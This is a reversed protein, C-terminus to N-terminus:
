KPKDAIARIASKTLKQRIKGYVSWGNEGAELAKRAAGLTMEDATNIEDLGAWSVPWAVSAGPRARPSYPAIATAGLENRFHDIFIRGKRKAKSMTATFKQPADAAVREALDSAFKKIVAFDHESQLPVVIHIGKGGSLLPLSELGIASLVDRIRRAGRKVAAFEVSPDPDLDFVMRDPRHVDEHKSGWVHFELVGMQVANLLAEPKKLYIYSESKGEKNIFAEALWNEGFGAAPHRQYFCKKLAGEPCRVLTMFRDEIYPLMLHAAAQMYTAIDSKTIGQDPYILKDPHSLKLPTVASRPMEQRVEKAPKDERLGQFRGHRILREPTWGAFAIQAVQKPKVWIVGRRMPAPVDCAPNQVTNKDRWAALKALVDDSFGSGVRGAYRLDKGERQAMLLSAFPRRKDSPAFGIIVFEQTHGCKIKLWDHGRGSRYPRDERKAVIGELGHKCATKLLKKPDGVFDESYQLPANKDLPGLLTKLKKKRDSLPNRTLDEGNQSLLDFLFYTLPYKGNELTASLAGFDTRGSKGVVAIEGDLLCARLKLAAVAKAVAPFKTTWDLGSRTYIKVADGDAAILARYGDYKIEYIWGKEDPPENVLTALMPALFSPLKASKVTANWTADDHAIDAMERGSLISTTGTNLLDGNTNSFEDNEKILLWNENKEKNRPRMRILAWRGHLREGNLIFALKGNSLGEHPDGQPVWSGTDWLMVTGSGYNGKPITGEFKGYELPHNETRVALRKDKPNYSPGRTVAWSLLVGDLELRFDYHLRTADHKQILYAQGTETQGGGKPESTEDFRRKARYRTLAKDVPHNAGTM